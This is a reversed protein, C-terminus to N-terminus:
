RRQKIVFGEQELLRCCPPRCCCCCGYCIVVVSHYRMLRMNVPHTNSGWVWGVLGRAKLSGPLTYIKQKLVGPCIIRLVRPPSRLYVQILNGSLFLFFIFGERRKKKERKGRQRKKSRKTTEICQMGVFNLKKKKTERGKELDTGGGRNMRSAWCPLSRFRALPGLQAGREV